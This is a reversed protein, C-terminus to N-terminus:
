DDAPGGDKFWEVNVRDGCLLPNAWGDGRETLDLTVNWCTPGPEIMWVTRGYHWQKPRGTKRDHSRWKLARGVEAVCEDGDHEWIIKMAQRDNVALLVCIPPTRDRIREVIPQLLATTAGGAIASGISILAVVLDQDVASRDERPPEFSTTFGEERIMQAVASVRAPPGVFTVVPVAVSGLGGAGGGAGRGGAGRSRDLIVSWGFGFANTAGPMHSVRPSM